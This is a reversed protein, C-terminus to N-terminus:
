SCSALKAWKLGIHRGCEPCRGWAVDIVMVLALGIRIWFWVTRHEFRYNNSIMQLSAGFIAIVWFITELVFCLRRRFVYTEKFGREITYDNLM